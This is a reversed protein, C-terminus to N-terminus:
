CVQVNKLKQRQLEEVLSGISVYFNLILHIHFTFMCFKLYITINMYRQQLQIVQLHLEKERTSVPSAQM